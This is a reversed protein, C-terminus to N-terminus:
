YHPPRTADPMPAAIEELADFRGLLRRLAAELRDIAEGQRRVEDSLTEIALGQHAAAMEMAELRGATEGPDVAM